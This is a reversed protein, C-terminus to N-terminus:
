EDIVAIEPIQSDLLHAEDAPLTLSKDRAARTDWRDIDLGWYSNSYDENAEGDSGGDSETDSGADRKINEPTFLADQPTFDLPNDAVEGLSSALNHMKMRMESLDATIDGKASRAFDLLDCFEVPITAPLTSGVFAQKATLIRIMANKTSEHPLFIRWPLDGM